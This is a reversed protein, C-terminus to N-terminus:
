SLDEIGSRYQSNVNGTRIIKYTRMFVPLQQDKLLAIESKIQVLENLPRGKIQRTNIV